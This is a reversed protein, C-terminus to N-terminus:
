DQSGDPSINNHIIQQAAKLVVEARGNSQPLSCFAVQPSEGYNSFIM